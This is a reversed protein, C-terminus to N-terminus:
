STGGALAGGDMPLAAGHLSAAADTCLFAVLSAVEDPTILRHQPSMALISARAEERSRGTVKAVRSVSGDTMPTDVYGPCVANVTVGRGAVEAAVSRTLGLAAHKSASYAAIYRGGVLAAVSAMTVIRGWGEELMGPLFARTCLFPGGANVAMMRNWAEPTTRHVPASDSVGANNVLITVPGLEDRLEQALADVAEPVTVDLTRAHAQHGRSRLREAVEEVQTRSRAAVVVQAGARALHEAVAAGIGRGGGTVLATRGAPAPSPTPSPAPVPSPTLPADGM